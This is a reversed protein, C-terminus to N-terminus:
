QEALAKEIARVIKVSDPKTTSYFFDVLEGQRNILYKHFNWKPASGFGLKQSAWRYFPHAKPGSVVEKAAMPFTVGYNVQCFTAITKATGPEQGGFDNSPIGIIVLGEDKYKKYLKELGAYQPTFGCNSATNVVMIVKGRYASLPLPQHDVLSSFSFSYANDTLKSIAKNALGTSSSVFFGCLIAAITNLLKKWRDTVM